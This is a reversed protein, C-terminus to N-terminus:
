PYPHFFLVNTDARVYILQLQKYGVKVMRPLASKAGEAEALFIDRGAQSIFHPNPSPIPIFVTHYAGGTLHPNRTSKNPPPPSLIYPITHVPADM